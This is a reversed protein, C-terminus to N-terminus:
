FLATPPELKLPGVAVALVERLVKGPQGLVGPVETPVEVARVARFVQGPTTPAEAEAETALLLRFFPISATPAKTAKAQLGQVALALRLPIFVPRLLCLARPALVVVRPNGRFTLGTDEPVAVVATTSAAAEAEPSWLM